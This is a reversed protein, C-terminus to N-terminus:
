RILNYIFNSVTRLFMIVKHKNFTFAFDEHSKSKFAWKTQRVILPRLQEENM